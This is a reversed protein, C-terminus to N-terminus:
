TRDLKKEGKRVIKAIAVESGAQLLLTAGDIANVAAAAAVAATSDASGQAPQAQVVPAPLTAPSGGVAFGRPASTFDLVSRM